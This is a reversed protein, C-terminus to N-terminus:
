WRVELRVGVLDLDSQPQYVKAQPKGRKRLEIFNSRGLHMGDVTAVAFAHPAVHAGLRGYFTTGLGPELHLAYAVDEFVVSADEGTSLLRRLGVAAEFPDKASALHELGLRGSGVRYNEKQRVSLRRQWSDYDYGVVADLRPWRWRAEGTVRTGLYESTGRAATTSDFQFSGQYRVGGGYIGLAAGLLPGKTVPLAYAVRGSFRPGNERVELPSTHERWTFREIAASASLQALAPAPVHLAAM